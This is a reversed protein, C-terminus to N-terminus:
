GRKKTRSPQCLSQTVSQNISQSISQDVSQSVSQNIAQKSAQKSAQNISQNFSHNIQVQRVLWNPVWYAAGPSPSLCLRKTSMINQSMAKSYCKEATHQVQEAACDSIHFAAAQCELKSGVLVTNLRFAIIHLLHASCYQWMYTFSSTCARMNHLVPLPQALNRHSPFLSPPRYLAHM